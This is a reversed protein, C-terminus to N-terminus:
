HGLGSDQAIQSRKESFNKTVFPYDDLLGWRELYEEPSMGFRSKLYRKLLGSM